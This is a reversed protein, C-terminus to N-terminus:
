EAIVVFEDGGLRCVMDAARVQGTLRRAVERLLADGAMHGLTDNVNKFDDLDILLLATRTRDRRARNLAEGLSKAYHARNALGTLEDFWAQRQLQETLQRNRALLQRNERLSLAQRASVAAILLGIGALVGWQRWDLLPSLVVVLLLFSAATAAYPLISLVRRRTRRPPPREGGRASIRYQLLCGITIMYVALITGLALVVFDRGGALSALGVSGASLGVGGAFCLLTPRSIVNAGAFAIKLMAFGAVLSLLPQVLTALLAIWGDGPVWHRSLNFYWIFVGGGLLVINADMGVTVREGVSRSTTPYRFMAVISLLGALPYVFGLALRVMPTGLVAHSAAVALDVVMGFGYCVLTAVLSLWLRRDARPLGPLRATRWLAASAVALLVACSLNSVALVTAPGAFGCGPAAAAAIATPLLWFANTRLWM